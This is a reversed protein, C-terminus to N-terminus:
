TLSVIFYSVLSTAKIQCVAVVVVVVVLQQLSNIDVGIGDQERRRPLRQLVQQDRPRFRAGGCDLPRHRLQHPVRVRHPSHLRLHLRHHPLLPQHLLRVDWAERIQLRKHLLNEAHVRRHGHGDGPLGRLLHLDRPEREGGARTEHHVQERDVAVRAHVLAGVLETRLPEERLGLDLGGGGEIVVLKLRIAHAPPNARASAEAVHHHVDHQRM